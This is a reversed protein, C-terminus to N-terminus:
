PAQGRHPGPHIEVYDIGNIWVTYVPPNAALYRELSPGWRKMQIRRGYTVIYDADDPVGERLPEGDIPLLATLIDWSHADIRLSAADPQSALWHAAQDLGEGNGIMVARQAVAGGGLLPNYFSLPYPYTSALPWILGIALAAGFAAQVMPRGARVLLTWWGLSALIVLSPYIPLLYRDFKKPGLTMMLSFGGIFVLLWLVRARAPRALRRGVVALAAVGLMTCPSLRFLTAVPYYLPGPDSGVQGLFYSGVEDPQGGTERTFAIIRGFVESPGLVWLAPWLLGFTAVAVVGWVMLDVLPRRVTKWISADMRTLRHRRVAEGLVLLPVFGLLYIAPSKSLLALGTTVGCFILSWRGADTTWRALALLMALTVFATLPGDVHVLQQNAVLFPEAALGLGTLAAPGIGFLRAALVTAGAAALAGLVAFGIRAQALGAMYGPVQGVFRLGHVRDAFRLAGDPGQSLLGIWMTTVGPHGNQYTRGLQGNVLGFTFGGTRRMWSDEDSTPFLDRALLRPLLALVFVAVALAALRGALGIRLVDIMALGPRRKEAAEAHAVSV